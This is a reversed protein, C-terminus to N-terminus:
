WCTPHGDVGSQERRLRLSNDAADWQSSLIDHLVSSSREYCQYQSCQHHYDSIHQLYTRNLTSDVLPLPISCALCMSLRVTDRFAWQFLGSTNEGVVSIVFTCFVWFFRLFLPSTSMEQGRLPPHFSFFLFSHLALRVFFTRFGAGFLSLFHAVV